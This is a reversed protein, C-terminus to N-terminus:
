LQVGLFVFVFGLVLLFFSIILILASIVSISVFVGYLSDIFCFSRRQFIFLMSLGRAFRVLILLSFVWLLLILFEVPSTVVFVLSIWSIM